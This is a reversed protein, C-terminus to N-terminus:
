WSQLLRPPSLQQPPALRRRRPKLPLPHRYRSTMSSALLVFLLPLTLLMLAFIMM